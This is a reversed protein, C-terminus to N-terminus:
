KKGELQKILNKAQLEKLFAPNMKAQEHHRKRCVQYNKRFQSKWIEPETSMCIDHWDSAQVAERVIPHMENLAKEKNYHGYKRILDTVIALAQDDDPENAYLIKEVYDMIEGPMPFTPYKREMALLRCAQEMIPLTIDGLLAYYADLKAKTPEINYVAGLFAMPKIFEDFKM